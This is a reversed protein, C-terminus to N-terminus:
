NKTRLRVGPADSADGVFEIGAAEFTKILRDLTDSRSPPMGHYQEMRQITPKSVGSHEVAERISWNLMARAARIQTGVIM